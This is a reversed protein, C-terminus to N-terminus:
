GRPRSSGGPSCRRGCRTSTPPPRTSAVTGAAGCQFTFSTAGRGTPPSTASRPMEQSSTPACSRRASCAPPHACGSSSPTTSRIGAVREAILALVVYGGNCYSFREGATFKTAYGDLVQLYQETTALEHAPVALLYDDLDLDEDEDLYDGIGSRHALLQEVTVDDAILPLDKGLVSRAATTLDLRGEEILSVVALATLGKTASAIGFRTDVTNVVGLARHAMGYAHSFVIADGIDVRVVGSFATEDALRDLARM